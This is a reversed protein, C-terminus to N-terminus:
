EIQRTKRPMYLENVEGKRSALIESEIQKIVVLGEALPANEISKLQERISERLNPDMSDSGTFSYSVTSSISKYLQLHAVVVDSPCKSLIEGRVMNEDNKSFNEFRIDMSTSTAYCHLNVSNAGMQNSSYIIRTVDTFKVRSDEGDRDLWAIYDDGVVIKKGSLKFINVAPYAVFILISGIAYVITDGSFVVPNFAAYVLILFGFFLVIQYALVDVTYVRVGSDVKAPSSHM